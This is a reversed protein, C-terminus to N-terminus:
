SRALDYAIQAAKWDGDLRTWTERYQADIVWGRVAALELAIAAFRDRAVSARNLEKSTRTLAARSTTASM